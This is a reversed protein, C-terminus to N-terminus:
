NENEDNHEKKLYLNIFYIQGKGTVKTTRVLRVSGNPDIITREKVEFWGREMSYQTPMNWSSGSSMLYGRNRLDEFLRNPGIDYGNQRLLKALDGVLISQVSAEVSEAFLVMPEDEKAKVVLAKNTEELRLNEQQLVAAREQEAKLQQLLRIGFDPDAIIKDITTETMYAGHKRISPLVDSTVWSRFKVAEPKRSFLVLAYLGSENVFNHSSGRDGLNFKAKDSEPIRHLVMTTNTFGLVKCADAAHFWIEGDVELTRLFGFEPNEFIKLDNAM